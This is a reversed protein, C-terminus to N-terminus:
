SAGDLQVASRGTCRAPMGDVARARRNTKAAQAGDIPMPLLPCRGPAVREAAFGKRRVQLPWRPRRSRTPPSPRRQRTGRRRWRWATPDLLSSRGNARRTVARVLWEPRSYAATSAPLDESATDPLGPRPPVPIHCSFRFAMLLVCSTDPIPGVLRSMVFAVVMTEVVPPKETPSPGAPMAFRTSTLCGSAVVLTCCQISNCSPSVFDSDAQISPLDSDSRTAPRLANAADSGM